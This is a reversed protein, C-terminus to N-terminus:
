WVVAGKSFLIGKPKIIMSYFFSIEQLKLKKLTYQIWLFTTNGHVFHLVIFGARYIGTSSSPGSHINEFFGIQRHDNGTECKNKYQNRDNTRCHLVTLAFSHLLFSVDFGGDSRLFFFFPEIFLRCPKQLLRSFICSGVIIVVCDLRQSGKGSIDLARQAAQAMIQPDNGFIQAGCLSGPNKKLLAASKKDQYVLARSSVMETITVNAGLEACISRFAWDTVGAMPGLVIPNHIEHTGLKM